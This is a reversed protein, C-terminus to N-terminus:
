DKCRQSSSSWHERDCLLSDNIFYRRIIERSSGNGGLADAVFRLNEELMEKGYVIEVFKVFRNVIDDEFYEDDSIPLIADKDPIFTLYNNSDLQGGACVVGDVDM